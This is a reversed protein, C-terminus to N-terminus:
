VDYMVGRSIIKSNRYEFDIIDIQSVEPSKILADERLTGLYQEAM